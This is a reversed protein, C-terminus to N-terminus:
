NETTDGDKTPTQVVEPTPQDEIVPKGNMIKCGLLVTSGLTSMAVSQIALDANKTFASVIFGIAGPILLLFFSAIKTISTKGDKDNFSEKFSFKSPDGIMKLRKM